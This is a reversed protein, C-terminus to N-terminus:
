AHAPQAGAQRRLERLAVIALALAAGIEGLMVIWSLADVHLDPYPDSLASWHPALHSAAVGVAGSIGVVACFAPARPHHRLAMLMVVIALVSLTTGGLVIEFTLGGLGQRVHDLTHLVNAAVFAVAAVALPNRSGKRM